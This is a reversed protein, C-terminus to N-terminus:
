ESHIPFWSIDNKRLCNWVNLETATLDNPDTLYLYTIFYVYKWISHEENIHSEYDLGNKAFYDRNMQCIFCVNNMDYDKQETKERLEAFADLVIGLYMNGLIVLVLIHFLIYFVVLVFYFSDNYSVKPLLMSLGSVSHMGYNVINFYCVIVNSCTNEPVSDNIDPNFLLNASFIPYLYFYVIWMFFYNILYTFCLVTIFQKWKLYIANFVNSIVPILNAIFLLAFALFLANYTLFFIVILIMNLFFTNINKNLMITDWIFVWYQKYWKINRNMKKFLNLDIKYNNGKLLYKFCSFSMERKDDDREMIFRRNYKKVINSQFQLFSYTKFWYIFVGIFLIIQLICIIINGMFINYVNDANYYNEKKSYNYFLIIQNLLILFYNILEFKILEIKYPKYYNKNYFMELMFSDTQNTLEIIKTISDSRNV